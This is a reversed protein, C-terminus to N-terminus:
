FCPLILGIGVFIALSNANAHFVCFGSHNNSIGLITNNKQWLGFGNQHRRCFHWICRFYPLLPLSQCWWFGYFFLCAAFVIKLTVDKDIKAIIDRKTPQIAYVFVVWSILNVILATIWDDKTFVSVFKYILASLGGKIYNNLDKSQDWHIEFDSFPPQPFAVGFCLMMISIIVAVGWVMQLTSSVKM